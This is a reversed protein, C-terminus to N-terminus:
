HQDYFNVLKNKLVIFFGIMSPILINLIFTMISANFATAQQAGVKALFFIAASERIGLDGLSIPLLSKVLLTSSIAQFARFLHIHEFAIVLLSFQIFYILYFIVSYIILRYANKRNFNDFVSILQKIKDRIPLIVNIKYLLTRILEPHILVYRLLLLTIITFILLPLLIFFHLQKGLLSLIGISGMFIVIALSFFKDIFSVGIVKMWPCDKIFFARGFEGVRGPTIFGFAFGALLSKLAEANDAEPKVLRILYRWKYYQIYINPVVLLAAMIIYIYTAKGFTTIINAVKLNKVLM